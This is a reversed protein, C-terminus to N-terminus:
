GFYACIFHSFTRCRPQLRALIPPIPPIRGPLPSLTSPSRKLIANLEVEVRREEESKEEKEEKKGEEKGEGDKGSTDWKKREEGTRVGGGKGKEEEKKNGDGVSVVDPPAKVDPVPERSGADVPVQAETKGNLADSDPDPLKPGTLPEQQGESRAKAAAHAEM